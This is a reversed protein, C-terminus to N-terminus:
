RGSKARAARSTGLKRPRARNRELVHFLDRQCRGEYRRQRKSGTSACIQEQVLLLLGVLAVQCAIVTMRGIAEPILIPAAHGKVFSSTELLGRVGETLHFARGHVLIGLVVQAIGAELEAVVRPGHRSVLPYQAGIRAVFVGPM